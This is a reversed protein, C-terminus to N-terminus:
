QAEIRLPPPYLDNIHDVPFGGENTLQEAPYYRGSIAPDIKHCQGGGGQRSLFERVPQIEISTGIWLERSFLLPLSTGLSALM